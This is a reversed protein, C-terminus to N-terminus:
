CRKSGREESTKGTTYACLMSEPIGEFISSRRCRVKGENIKYYRASQSEQIRERNKYYYERSKEKLKERNETRYIRQFELIKERNKLRYERQYEKMNEIM